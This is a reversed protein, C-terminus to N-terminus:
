NSYNKNKIDQALRYIKEAEATVELNHEKENEIAQSFVLAAELFLSYDELPINLPEGGYDQNVKNLM